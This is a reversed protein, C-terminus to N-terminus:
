TLAVNARVYNDVATSMLVIQWNVLHVFKLILLLFNTKTSVLCICIKKTWFLPKLRPQLKWLISFFFTQGNWFFCWCNTIILFFFLKRSDGNEVGRTVFCTALEKELHGQWRLQETRKTTIWQQLVPHAPSSDKTVMNRCLNNSLYQCLLSSSSDKVNECASAWTLWPTHITQQAAENEKRYYSWPTAVPGKKGM